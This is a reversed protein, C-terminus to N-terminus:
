HPPQTHKYLSANALDATTESAACFTPLSSVWGMTTSLPVAVLQPERSYRPMLVSLKLTDAPQLFMRYFGNAIDFKSLYIPGEKPDAHRLMWLVRSLTGGFQMVEPPLQAITHENVRFWTHDIIVRPRRNVEEKVALPSLRFDKGLCQVQELLLVVWFGANIFDAM